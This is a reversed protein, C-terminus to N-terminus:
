HVAAGPEDIEPADLFEANVVMRRQMQATSYSRVSRDELMRKSWVEPAVSARQLRAAWLKDADRELLRERSTSIVPMPGTLRSSAMRM